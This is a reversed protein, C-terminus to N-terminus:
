SDLYRISHCLEDGLTFIALPAVLKTEAGWIFGCVCTIWENIKFLDGDVINKLHM